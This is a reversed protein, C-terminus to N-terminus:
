QNVLIMRIPAMLLKKVTPLVMVTLIQMRLIRLIVMSECSNNPNTGDNAEQADNIGDDDSDADDPDTINGNPNAPTLPDDVGTHIQVTVMQIQQLQHTM